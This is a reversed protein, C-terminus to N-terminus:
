CDNIVNPISQIIFFLVSCQLCGFCNVKLSFVTDVDQLPTLFELSFVETLLNSALGLWDNEQLNQEMWFQNIATCHSGKELSDLGKGLSPQNFSAMRGLVADPYFLEVMRTGETLVIKLDNETLRIKNTVSHEQPM